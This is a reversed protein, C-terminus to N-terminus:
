LQRLGVTQKHLERSCDRVQKIKEKVDDTWLLLKFLKVDVRTVTPKHKEKKGLSIYTDVNIQAVPNMNGVKEVKQLEGVYCTLDVGWKNCVLIACVRDGKKFKM